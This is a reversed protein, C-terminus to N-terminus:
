LTPDNLVAKAFAERQERTSNSKMNNALRSIIRINGPIYGKESDIRDISSNTLQQGKGLEHTLKIGLYPCYEPIDIDNVTLSYELGNKMAREKTKILIKKKRGEISGYYERIQAMYKEKRLLWKEKGKRLLEEKHKEYYRKKNNLIKERNLPNSYYALNYQKIQEQTRAM